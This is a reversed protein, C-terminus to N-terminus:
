RRQGLTAMFSLRESGRVVLIEVREGPSASFLMAAYEELSAVATGDFSVIRDGGRLGAKEAPSGPRVGQLRVGPQDTPAFDPITGLYPGYGASQVASGHGQVPEGIFDPREDADLIARATRYVVALVTAEGVTHVLAADDDPRHYEHHLGTFFYIVPIRKAYFSSQDSPAFEGGAFIPDLPLGESARKVIRRFGPSSATNFVTLKGDRLRGIMDLNLMAVTSDLPRPPDDVYAASGLLGLEEGAFAVLALSRRARPQSGFARALELLGATGSANDDAGNHVTGIQDPAMSGFEGHGLHDYHAGIVVWEHKLESDSGELVGIVNSAPGKEREIEISLKVTLGGLMSPAPKAKSDIRQQLEGLSTAGAAAIIREAASRSLAAAPVSGPQRTPSANGRGAGAALGDADTRSPALLVAVAGHGRANAIKYARRLFGRGHVNGLPGDRGNPRDELVLVIKGKADLGAYDDWGENEATIGYGAFVLPASVQGNASFLFAEFDSGRVFEPADAAAIELGAHKVHIAIPTEFSQFWSGDAAGPGFGAREFAKALYREAAALGKTGPGRGDREDAALWAVDHAIRDPSMVPAPPLPTPAACASLLGMAVFATLRPRVQKRGSGRM